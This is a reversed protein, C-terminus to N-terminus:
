KRVDSVLKNFLKQQEKLDYIYEWFMVGALGKEKVYAVKPEFSAEDAYSIFTRTTPNWLYPAKADADWYRTFGNKNIYKEALEDYGIFLHKGTSPQYLGKAKTAAETNVINTWGRGYFPIGLVIKNAPVGAKIHGEVASISNTRSQGGMKSQGLPSHHGSVKDNGHYLDYTMINVYDLYKQANALETHNVFATDGGTAATLLYHNSAPRKDQKGQEDLRDRLAKLFLTFTQKDEPRYINGAGVQAPYEWDIDIGDLKHKKLLDVAADAFKKRSADTLAADSFYKCGGWGGISLLIKLDKNVSRLSTLNAMNVSDRANMPELTGDASPVAFAYNIHTLKNAQIQEKTWGNGTVYGIIVLKSKQAFVPVTLSAAFLCVAALFLSLVSKTM